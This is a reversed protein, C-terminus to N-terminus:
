TIKYIELLIFNDYGLYESIIQSTKFWILITYYLRDRPARTERPARAAAGRNIAQQLRILCPFTQFLKTTWEKYM